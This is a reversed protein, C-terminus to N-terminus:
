KKKLRQSHLQTWTTQTPDASCCPGNNGKRPDWSTCINTIENERKGKVSTSKNNGQAPSHLGQLVPFVSCKMLGGNAWCLPALNLRKASRIWPLSSHREVGPQHPSGCVGALILIRRCGSVGWDTCYGWQDRQMRM